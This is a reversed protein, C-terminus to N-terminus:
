EVVWTCFCTQCLHPDRREEVRCPTNRWHESTPFGPCLGWQKKGPSLKDRSQQDKIALLVYSTERNLSLWFSLSDGEVQVPHWKSAKGWFVYVLNWKKNLCKNMSSNGFSYLTSSFCIQCQAQLRAVDARHWKLATAECSFGWSHPPDWISLGPNKIWGRREKQRWSQGPLM